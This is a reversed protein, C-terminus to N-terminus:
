QVRCHHESILYVAVPALGGWGNTNATHSVVMQTRICLCLTHIWWPRGAGALSCNQRWEFSPAGSASSVPLLTQHVSVPHRRGGANSSCSGHRAVEFVASCSPEHARGEGLAAHSATLRVLV